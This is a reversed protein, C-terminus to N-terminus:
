NCLEFGWRKKLLKLKKLKLSIRPFLYCIMFKIKEKINTNKNDLLEMSIKKIKKLNNKYFETKSYNRDSILALANLKLQFNLRNQNTIYKLLYLEKKEFFDMREDLAEIYDFRNMKFSNMISGERQVYHYLPELIYSIKNAAELLDCIIFGDEHVKGVKYRINKFLEKKYLKNWALVTSGSYENYLNYYKDNGECVFKKRPYKNIETRNNFEKYYDCISIDSNNEILDNYLVEVMNTEVYDDSDIFMLYKGTALEIGKNRADSLGGNEKHIVKIRDDTKAIDDCIKSSSDTSGDDIIVIRSKQINSKNNDYYM